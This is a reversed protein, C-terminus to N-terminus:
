NESDVPKVLWIGVVEVPDHPDSSRLVLRRFSPNSSDVEIEPRWKLDGHADVEALLTRLREPEPNSAWADDVLKHTSPEGLLKDAPHAETQNAERNTDM